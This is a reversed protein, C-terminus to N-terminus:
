RKAPRLPCSRDLCLRIWGASAEQEPSASGAGAQRKASVLRLSSAGRGACSTAFYTNLRLFVMGLGGGSERLPHSAGNDEVLLRPPPNLSGGSLVPSMRTADELGAGAQAPAPSPSSLRWLQSFVYTALGCAALRRPSDTIWLEVPAWLACPTRM